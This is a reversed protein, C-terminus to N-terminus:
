FVMSTRTKCCNKFARFPINVYVSNNNYMREIHNIKFSLLHTSLRVVSISHVSKCVTCSKKHIPILIM